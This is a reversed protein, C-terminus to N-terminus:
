QRGQIERERIATDKWDVAGVGAHKGEFIFRFCDSTIYYRIRQECVVKKARAGQDARIAASKVVGSRHLKKIGRHGSHGEKRAGLGGEELGEILKGNKKRRTRGRKSRYFSPAAGGEIKRKKKL